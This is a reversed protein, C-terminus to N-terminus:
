FIYAFGAQIGITTNYRYDKVRMYQKTTSIFSYYCRGEVHIAWHAAVRFELGLGGALGFDWRQDKESQFIYPENFKTVIGSMPDYYRGKQLGAAWYGAYIGANVFGRVITGGFSFQAMVPIQVYTNHYVYNTGSFTGTRYFRHNREMAELEARLGVWDKFNYQTFLAASWGWAGETRYDTQYQNDISYWNYTAGGSAGIRWQAQAKSPLLCCASLLILAIISSQRM